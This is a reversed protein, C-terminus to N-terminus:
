PLSTLAQQRVIFVDASDIDGSANIDERFNSATVTHLTQQRVLFVDASDVDGSGNVDGLLVGMPVSVANSFNGASDTVNTLSVTIVQANSVGSLNVVYNHADSSDTNSSSVSGTGSTVRAGGVSILPNAFTFVLTYDGNPGGSRCEIGRPGTLPLKVDFAGVSGHTKRSVASTLIPPIFSWTDSVQRGPNDQQGGFLLVTAGPPFTAMSSKLVNGPATTPQLHNWNAGDWAWTDKVTASTIGQSDVTMGGFMLIRHGTPDYAASAFSTSPPSTAPHRQMWDNGNWTWTDAYNTCGQTLSGCAFGGFLVVERSDPDYAMEAYERGPPNIATPLKTWTAGDWRWTDNPNSNFNSPDYGGFLVLNGTADPAMVGNVLVPPSNAPTEETWNTGDWTWTVSYYVAKVSDYGYSLLMAKGSPAHYAMPAGVTFPAPQAPHQETWRAGDWTWTDNCYTSIPSDLCFGGSLVVTRTAADYAIAGAQREVPWTSQLHVWGGADLTWTDKEYVLFGAGQQQFAAPTHFTFGGILVAKHLAADYALGPSETREPMTATQQQTWTTGDWLWTDQRFADVLRAQSDDYGGFLVTLGRAADFVIGAGQRGSPSASPSLQNWNRGDWTWTDNYDAIGENPVTTSAPTAGGFLVTMGRVSDFSLSAGARELPANMPQQLTWNSGDWTWTDPAMAPCSELCGSFLVVQQHKADYAMAQSYRAPPSLAPHQETWTTGDWTWTDNVATCEPNDCNLGGFVVVVQRAEDYAISAYYRAPPSTAPHQQKWSTGDFTWTDNVPFCSAGQCILGGFLVLVGRAADYILQPSDHRIPESRSALRWSDSVGGSTQSVVPHSIMSQLEAISASPRLQVPGSAVPSPYPSPGSLAPAGQPQAIIAAAGQWRPDRLSPAGAFSLMALWASVSCLALGSLIRPYFLRPQSSFYRRM